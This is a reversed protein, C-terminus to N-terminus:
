PNTVFWVVWMCGSTSAMMNPGVSCSETRVATQGQDRIVRGFPPSCSEATFM